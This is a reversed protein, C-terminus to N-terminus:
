NFETQGLYAIIANVFNRYIPVLETSHVREERDQREFIQMMIISDIRPANPGVNATEDFLKNPLSRLKMDTQCPPSLFLVARARHFDEVSLVLRGRLNQKADAIQWNPNKEFWIDINQQLRVGIRTAGKALMSEVGCHHTM